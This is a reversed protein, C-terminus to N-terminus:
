YFTDDLTTTGNLPGGVRNGHLIFQLNKKQVLIAKNPSFVLLKQVFIYSVM